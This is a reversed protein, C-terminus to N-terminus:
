KEVLCYYLFNGDSLMVDPVIRDIPVRMHNFIVVFNKKNRFDFRLDYDIYFIMKNVAVNGFKEEMLSFPSVTKVLARVNEYRWPIGASWLDNTTGPPATQYEIAVVPNFGLALAEKMDRKMQRELAKIKL